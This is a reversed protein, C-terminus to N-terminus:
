KVINGSNIGGNITREGQTGHNSLDINGGKVSSNGFKFDGSKLLSSGNLNGGFGFLGGSGPNPAYQPYEQAQPASNTYQM